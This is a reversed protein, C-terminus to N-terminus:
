LYEGCAEAAMLCLIPRLRKGGSLVGYRMAAALRSPPAINLNKSVTPLYRSLAEEISQSSQNLFGYM